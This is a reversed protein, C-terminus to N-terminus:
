VTWAAISGVTAADGLRYINIIRNESNACLPVKLTVGDKLEM